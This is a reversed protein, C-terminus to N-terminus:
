PLHHEKPALSLRAELRQESELLPRTRDLVLHQSAPLEDPTEWERALDDYLQKWGSRAAGADRAALRTHATEAGM